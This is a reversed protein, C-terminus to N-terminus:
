FIEEAFEDLAKEYIEMEKYYSEAHAAGEVILKRKPSRCNDYIEQCMMRVQRKIKNRIHAKGLKKSVSLGIRAHDEKRPKIYLTFSPCVYFNKNNMIELFEESKRIRLTKKM